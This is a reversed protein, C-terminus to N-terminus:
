LTIRVEIGLGRGSCQFAEGQTLRKAALCHQTSLSSLSAAVDNVMSRSSTMIMPSSLSLPVPSPVEDTSASLDGRALVLDSESPPPVGPRFSEGEGRM